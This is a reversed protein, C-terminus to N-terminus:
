VPRAAAPYAEEDTRAERLVAEGALALLGISCGTLAVALTARAM